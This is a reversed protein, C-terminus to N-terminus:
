EQQECDHGEKEGLKMHVQEKPRANQEAIHNSSGGNAAGACVQSHKSRPKETHTMHRTRAPEGRRGGLEGQVGGPAVRPEQRGPAEAEKARGPNGCPGPPLAVRRRACRRLMRGANKACTSCRVHAHRRRRRTGSYHISAYQRDTYTSIPRQYRGGM